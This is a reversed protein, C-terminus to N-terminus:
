GTTSCAQVPTSKTTVQPLKRHLTSTTDPHVQTRTTYIFPVSLPALRQHRRDAHIITACEPM